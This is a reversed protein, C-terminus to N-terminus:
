ERWRSHAFDNHWSPLQRDAAQQEPFATRCAVAASGGRPTRPRRLAGLNTRWSRPSFFGSPRARRHEAERLFFSERDVARAWGLHQRTSHLDHADAHRRRGSGGCSGEGRGAAVSRFQAPRIGSRVIARRGSGLCHQCQYEFQRTRWLNALDSGRGPAVAECELFIPRPDFLTFADFAVARIVSRDGQGTAAARSSPTVATAAIGSTM